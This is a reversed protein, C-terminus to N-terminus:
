EDHEDAIVWWKDIITLVYQLNRDDIERFLEMPALDLGSAKGRKFKGITSKYESLTFGALNYSVNEDM